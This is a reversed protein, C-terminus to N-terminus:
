EAAIPKPRVADIAYAIAAHVDEETLHEYCELIDGVTMGSRLDELVMEVSIRTGAIRPKGSLTDATSVIRASM